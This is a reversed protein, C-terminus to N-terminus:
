RRFAFTVTLPTIQPYKVRNSWSFSPVSWHRRQPHERVHVRIMDTKDTVQSAPPARTRTRLRSWFRPWPWVPCPSPWWSAFPSSSSAPPPAYSSAAVPLWRLLAPVEAQKAWLKRRRGPPTEAGLGLGAPEWGTGPWWSRPSQHWSWSGRLAPPAQPPGASGCAGCCGTM